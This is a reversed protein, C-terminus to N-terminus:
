KALNDFQTTVTVDLTSGFRGPRSPLAETGLLTSVIAYPKCDAGRTNIRCATVANERAEDVIRGAGTGCGGQRSVAFAKADDPNAPYNAFSKQCVPLAGPPAPLEAFLPSGVVPAIPLALGALFPELSSFWDDAPAAVVLDHGNTGYLPLIRLQAPAGGATYAAFM